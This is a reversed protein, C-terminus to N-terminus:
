PLGDSVFVQGYTGAAFAVTPGEFDSLPTIVEFFRRGLVGPLQRLIELPVPLHRRARLYALLIPSFRPDAEAPWDRPPAERPQEVQRSELLAQIREPEVDPIVFFLLAIALMTEFDLDGDNLVAELAGLKELKSVFQSHFECVSENLSDRYSIANPCDATILGELYEVADGADAEEHSGFWDHFLGAPTQKGYEREAVFLDSLQHFNDLDESISGEGYCQTLWGLGAVVPHYQDDVFCFGADLNGHFIEHSHLLQLVRAIGYLVILAHEDTLHGDGPGAHDGIFESLPLLRAHTPELHVISYLRFGDRLDVNWATTPLISPHGQVTILLDRLFYTIITGPAPDIRDAPVWLLLYARDHAGAKSLRQIPQRPDFPDKSFEDPHSIFDIIRPFAAVAYM